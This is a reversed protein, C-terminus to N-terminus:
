AGMGSSAEGNLALVRLDDIISLNKSVLERSTKFEISMNKLRLPLDLGEGAMERAIKKIEAVAQAARNFHRERELVTRDPSVARFYSLDLEHRLDSLREFWRVTSDQEQSM